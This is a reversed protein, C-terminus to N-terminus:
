CNVSSEWRSLDVTCNPILHNITQRYDFKESDKGKINVEIKTIKSFAQYPEREASYNIFRTTQFICDKEQNPFLVDAVLKICKGYPVRECNPESSTWDDLSVWEDTCVIVELHEAKANGTNIINIKNGFCDECPPILVADGTINTKGPPLPFNPIIIHCFREHTDPRQHTTIFASIPVNLAVDDIELEKVQANSNGNFFQNRQEELADQFTTLNRFAKNKLFDISNIEIHVHPERELLWDFYANTQEPFATAAIGLITGTLGLLAITIVAIKNKTLFRYLRDMLSNNESM